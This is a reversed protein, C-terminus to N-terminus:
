LYHAPLQFVYRTLWRAENSQNVLLGFPLKQDIVFQELSRLQRKTINIGYKIEIPLCGFPGELILDIEAGGRTRYYYPTWHTLMTANLGKIIEEIIFGEFSRGVIPDGYLKEAETIGLLSHLLGSDRIHGKPMKVTGKLSSKEYSPLARWLFTGEALTLYERISGENVDLARAIESKNLITGSLKSLMSIFRQYSIKNLKPYQRAIDRYIYTDEYNEMWHLYFTKNNKLAPEPYGGLYWAKKIDELNISPAKLSKLYQPSLENQLLSYFTNMPQNALENAKFTGLEVIAIRGALTESIENLLSFSSSGTLLFRGKKERQEDISSRLLEFLKPMLQAEDFIVHESNESLFFETDLEVRQFASTKELDIYLWDPCVTRALMTKGSQRVGIIAVVPFMELLAAIKHAINRHM